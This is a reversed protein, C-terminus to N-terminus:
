NIRSEFAKMTCRILYRFLVRTRCCWCEVFVAVHILLDAFELLGCEGHEVAKVGSLHCQMGGLWNLSVVQTGVGRLPCRDRCILRDTYTSM